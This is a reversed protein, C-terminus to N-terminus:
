WMLADCEQRMVKMTVECSKRFGGEFGTVGQACLAMVYHAIPPLNLTISKSLLVTTALWAM